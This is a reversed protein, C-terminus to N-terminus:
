IGIPISVTKSFKRIESGYDINIEVRVALPLKVDIWEETWKYKGTQENFFYYKFALDSINRIPGARIGRQENYIQSYDKVLRNLEKSHGNYYYVIQGVTRANLRSSDVIATFEMMEKNGTFKLDKYQIINNIDRNFKDFFIGIDEEPLTKNVRQWIKIGNNFTSYIALSIVSLMAMVIIMEILTFAKNRM